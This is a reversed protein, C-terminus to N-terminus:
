IGGFVPKSSREPPWARAGAGLSLGCDEASRKHLGGRREARAATVIGKSWPHAIGREKRKPLEAKALLCEALSQKTFSDIVSLVRVRQSGATV